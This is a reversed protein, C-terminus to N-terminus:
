FTYKNEELKKKVDRWKPIKSGLLSYFQSNHKKVFLHCLEHIVIYDICARSSFILNPNLIINGNCLSGWRRSVKRIKIEPINKLQSFKQINRKLALYFEHLVKERLWNKLYEISKENSTNSPVSLLITNKRKKVSFSNETSKKIVLQYQKGLLFIESGNSLSDITITKERDFFDMQTQIWSSKRRLFDNIDDKNANLPVKVLVSKNPYVFISMTKRNEPVIRFDHLKM